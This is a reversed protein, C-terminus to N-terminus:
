EGTLPVRVPADEQRRRGSISRANVAKQLRGIRATLVINLQGYRLFAENDGSGKADTHLFSLEATQRKLTRLRLETIADLVKLRLLDDAVPPDSQRVRLLSDVRRQLEEGLTDYFGAQVDEQGGHALWGRWADLIARDEPRVLDEGSL